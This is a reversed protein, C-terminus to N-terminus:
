VVSKRDVSCNLRVLPREDTAYTGDSATVLVTEYVGSLSVIVQKVRSDVQRAHAEVQHLLDIKQAQTLSGLPEVSQYIQITPQHNFAKVVAGQGIEAIGKAADAAQQLAEPNIDDSYAFGTKEGSIARVGVGREINYSGEKVIGDELVWSENQSAQFYLDAYDVQRGMMSTLTKALIQDDIHSDSLLSKEVSNM